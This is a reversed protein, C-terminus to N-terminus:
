SKHTAARVPTTRATASGVHRLRMSPREVLRYILEALPLTILLTLGLVPWLHNGEFKVYPTAWYVFHLVVLHICFVGFSIHGLRRALRTSMVRAYTSDPDSFVGTLVLLVGILAYLTQRTLAEGPTSPDFLAPGSLPTAAVVLLSLAIAWCVGPQRGLTILRHLWPGPGRTTTIVHAWALAIGGAFWMLYNPLWQGPLGTELDYAWKNLLLTWAVNLAVLALVMGMVRRTTPRLRGKAGALWMLLPLVIYFSVETALSWMQTQGFRLSDSVYIDGMWLVTVWDHLTPEDDVRVFVMALVVAILYPPYIRLFRKWYYRRVGDHPRGRVASALYQHSLLFGSLVFFIAVGVDLRPLMLGVIGHRFYDGTWFTVHTLVVALAGVARLPDLVAFVPTAGGSPDHLLHDVQQASDAEHITM